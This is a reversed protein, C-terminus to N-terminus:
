LVHQASDKIISVIFDPDIQHIPHKVGLYEVYLADPILQAVYHSEEASVMKDLAGRGITVPLDIEKLYEDKLVPDSGLQLMLEKTRLMNEKWGNPHIQSLYNAYHPVKEELVEPNLLSAERESSELNWSFKTGLTLIGSLSGPELIEHLLAVYGGMSYGFVFPKNLGNHKIFESLDKQFGTIYFEHVHANIGHGNFDMLHVNYNEQLKEKVELFESAAGLAGHLILIDKM